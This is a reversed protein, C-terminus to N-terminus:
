KKGSKPAVANMLGGLDFFEAAEIVKNDKNFEYAAYFNVSTKV